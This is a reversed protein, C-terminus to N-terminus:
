ENVFPEVYYDLFNYKYMTRNESNPNHKCKFNITSASVSSNACDWNWNRGDKTSRTTLSITPNNSLLSVNSMSTIQDKSSPRNANKWTLGDFFIDAMLDGETTLGAFRYRMEEPMVHEVDEKTILRQSIISEINQTVSECELPSNYCKSATQTPDTPNILIVDKNYTANNALAQIEERYSENLNIKTTDTYYKVINNFRESYYGYEDLLNALKIRNEKVGPRNDLTEGPTLGINLMSEMNTVDFPLNTYAGSLKGDVVKIQDSFNDAAYKVINEAAKNCMAMDTISCHTVAEGDGLIKALQGPDGGMQFATVDVTGHLNYAKAINQTEISASFMGGFGGKAHTEFKTKEEATAFKVKLTALLMAGEDYATVYNNGCLLDFNSTPNEYIQQGIETLGIVPFTVHNNVTQVYNMSLSTTTDKTSRMYDMSASASFFGFGGKSSINMHTLRELQSFDQQQSFVLGGTLQNSQELAQYCQLPIVSQKATSYGVGPKLNADDGIIKRESAVDLNGAFMSTGSISLIM